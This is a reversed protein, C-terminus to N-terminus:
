GKCVLPSSKKKATTPKVKEAPTCQPASQAPIQWAPDSVYVTKEVIREVIKPQDYTSCDVHAADMAKAMDADDHARICAANNMGM